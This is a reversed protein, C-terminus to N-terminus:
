KKRRDNMVGLVRPNKHVPSILAFLCIIKDQDRIIESSYIEDRDVEGEALKM